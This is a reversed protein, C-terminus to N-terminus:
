PRRVGAHRRHRPRQPVGIERLARNREAIGDAEAPDGIEVPPEVKSVAHKPQEVEVGPEACLKLHELSFVADIHHPCKVEVEGAAGPRRQRLDLSSPEHDLVEGNGGREGVPAHRTLPPGGASVARCVAGVVLPGPAGCGVRQRGECDGHAEAERGCSTQRRHDHSWVHM